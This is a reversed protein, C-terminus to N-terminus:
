KVVDLKWLQVAKCCEEYIIKRLDAETMYQISRGVAPASSTVPKSPDPTALSRAILEEDTMKDGAVQAAIAQMRQVWSSVLIEPMGSDAAMETFSWPKGTAPNTKNRYKRVFDAFTM